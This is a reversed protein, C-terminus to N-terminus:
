RPLKKEPVNWTQSGGTGGASPRHCPAVQPLDMDSKGDLCGSHAASHKIHCEWSCLSSGCLPCFVANRLRRGCLFCVNASDMRQPTM